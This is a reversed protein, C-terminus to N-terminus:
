LSCDVFQEQKKSRIIGFFISFLFTSKRERPVAPAAFAYVHYLFVPSTALAATMCAVLLNVSIGEAPSLNILTVLETGMLPYKVIPWLYPFLYFAGSAAVAFSALSILLRSRLEQFHESLEM